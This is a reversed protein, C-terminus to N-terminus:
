EGIYTFEIQCDLENGVYGRGEDGALLESIVVNDVSAYYARRSNYEFRLTYTIGPTVTISGSYSTDTTANINASHNVLNAGVQATGNHLYVRFSDSEDMKERFLYDFSINVSTTTPKFGM